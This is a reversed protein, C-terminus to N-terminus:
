CIDIDSDFISTVSAQSLDAWHIKVGTTTGALNNSWSLEWMSISIGTAAMGSEPFDAHAEARGNRRGQAFFFILYSRLMPQLFAQPPLLRGVFGADPRSSRRGRLLKPSFYLCGQEGGDLIAFTLKWVLLM